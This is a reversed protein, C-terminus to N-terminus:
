YRGDFEQLVARFRENRLVLEELIGRGLSTHVEHVERLWNLTREESFCEPQELYYVLFQYIAQVTDIDKAIRANEEQREYWASWADVYGDLTSMSDYTGKLLMTLMVEHERRDYDPYKAKEYKPIDELKTEALDHVSLMSLIKQKDYGPIEECENPLFVLGIFWCAYMHEMISETDSVGQMVWGTRKVRRAALYENCLERQPSYRREDREVYAALDETAMRFFASLVSDTIPVRATVAGVLDICRHIYPLINFSIIGRETEIRKQLLSVITFLELLMAPHHRNSKLQTEVSNCLIRLTREGKRPVDMYDLMDQNPLYQKDGYYELHFGRNIANALDNDLLHRLYEYLMGTDGCYILSVSLGRLLFLDQRYENELYPKGNYRDDIIHRKIEERTDLYYRRLLETAQARLGSTKIRGLFFSLESKGLPPMEPYREAMRLITSEYRTVANVKKTIFRTIDKPFVMTFFSFDGTRGYEDLKDCFHLAILCNLYITSSSIMGLILRHHPDRFDIQDSGYAFSFVFAAERSLQGRDGHLAGELEYEFIQMIDPRYEGAEDGDYDELLKRIVFEDITILGSGNMIRLVEEADDCPLDPLTAIYRLCKERDYLSIPTMNMEQKYKGKVLPSRNLRCENDRFVRNIGVIRRAAPYRELAKLLAFDLVTEETVINLLGDIIFLPRRGKPIVLGGLLTALYADARRDEEELTRRIRDCHLYVPEMDHDAYHRVFYIYMMQLVYSKQTGAQGTIRLLSTAEPEKVLLSVVRLYLEEIVDRCGESVTDETMCKLRETLLACHRRFETEDFDRYGKMKEPLFRLSVAEAGPTPADEPVPVAAARMQEKERIAFFLKQFGDAGKAIDKTAFLTNFVYLDRERIEGFIYASILCHPKEGNKRLGDFQKVEDEIWLSLMDARSAVLIFHRCERLAANIADYHDGPNERKCLFCSLGRSELYECLEAAKRYSSRDGEEEGGHYSLFVEYQKTM